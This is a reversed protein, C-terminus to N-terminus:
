GSQGGPGSPGGPGGPSGGTGQGGPGGQGTSGSHYGPSIFFILIFASIANNLKDQKEQYTYQIYIHIHSTLFLSSCGFSFKEGHCRIKLDGSLHSKQFPAFILRKARGQFKRVDIYLQSTLFSNIPCVGM